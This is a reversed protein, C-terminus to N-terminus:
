QNIKIKFSFELRNKIDNEEDTDIAPDEVMAFIKIKGDIDECIAVDNLNRYIKLLKM